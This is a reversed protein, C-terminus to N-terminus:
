GSLMLMGIVWLSVLITALGGALMWNRKMVGYTIGAAIGILIPRVIPSFALVLLMMPVLVGVIIWQRKVAGYVMGGAIAMAVALNGFTLQLLDWM